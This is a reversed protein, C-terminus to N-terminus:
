GTDAAQRQRRRRQRDKVNQPHRADWARTRCTTSCYLGRGRAEFPKGCFACNKQRVPIRQTYARREVTKEEFRIPEDKRPEDAM